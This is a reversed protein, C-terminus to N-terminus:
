CCRRRYSVYRFILCKWINFLMNFRYKPTNTNENMPNNQKCFDASQQSTRGGFILEVHHASRFLSEPAKPSSGDFMTLM